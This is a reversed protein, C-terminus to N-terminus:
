LFHLPLTSLVLLTFVIKKKWGNLNKPSPLGIDLYKGRSHAADVEQRTPSSLCQMTYNSAGLLLTGMVNIAIHLGSNTSRVKGCDGAYLTGVQTGSRSKTAAWITFITNILLVTGATIAGALIGGRWGSYKHPEGSPNPNAAEYSVHSAYRGSRRVFALFRKTRNTDTSKTTEFTPSRDQLSQTYRGSTLAKFV